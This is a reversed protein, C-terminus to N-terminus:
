KYELVVAGIRKGDLFIAYKYRVDSICEIQIKVPVKAEFKIESSEIEKLFLGCFSCWNSASFNVPLNKDKSIKKIESKLKKFNFIESAHEEVDQLTKRYDSTDIYSSILSSINETSSAKDLNPHVIWNCYTFLLTYEKEQNENEIIKRITILFYVVDFGNRFRSNSRLFNQLNKILVKQNM